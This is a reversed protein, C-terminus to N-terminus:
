AADRERMFTRAREITARRCERGADLDYVFRPDNMAQRGFEARSLGSAECFALIEALLDPHQAERM